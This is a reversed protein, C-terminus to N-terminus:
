LDELFTFTDVMYCRHYPATTVVSPQNMWYSVTFSKTAPDYKNVGTPDIEASRTNGAPQGYANIVEVINDNADFKFVPAFSGWGSLGTATSMPYIYDGFLLEDFLVLSQGDWTQLQVTYPEGPYFESFNKTVHFYLAPNPLHVMSGTLVYRGAYKHKVKLSLLLQGFNGSIKYGANNVSKIKVLIFQAESTLLHTDINIPLEVAREGKPITVSAPITIGSAPFSYIYEDPVAADGESPYKEAQLERVAALVAARDSVVELNVVVDEQAPQEAALRVERLYEKVGEDLSVVEMTHSAGAPIEVIKDANLNILGYKQDEIMPDNLCSTFGLMFVLGLTLVYLNNKKM